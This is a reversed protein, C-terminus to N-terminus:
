TRLTTKAVMRLIEKDPDDAIMVHTKFKELFKLTERKAIDFGDVLASPHM